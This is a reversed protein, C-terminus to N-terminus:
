GHWVYSLRNTASREGRLDPKAWPDTCTSNTTSFTASPSTNEWHRPKGRDTDNRLSERWAWVDDPLHVIRWNTAVTWPCLRVREVHVFIIKFFNSSKSLTISFINISKLEALVFTPAEALFCSELPHLPGMLHCHQFWHNENILKSENNHIYRDFAGDCIWNTLSLTPPRRREVYLTVVISSLPGQAVTVNPMTGFAEIGEL